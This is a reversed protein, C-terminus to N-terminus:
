NRLQSKRMLQQEVQARLFLRDFTQGASTYAAIGAGRLLIRASNPSLDFESQIMSLTLFRNKFASMAHDDVRMQPRRTVPHVLARAQLNGTEVLAMLLDMDRIGISRGFEALSMEGLLHERGPLQDAYALVKAIPVHFGHYGAAPNTQRLPIAGSRIGILIDGVSVGSQSQARQIPVWGKGAEAGPDRESHRKLEQLLAEGDSPLWRQRAGTVTTRPHIIGGQELAALETSTMGFRVCIEKSSELRPIDMLLQAFEKADFTARAHPRPDDAALAGAEILLPRLRKPDVGTEVGASAVSHLRRETLTVGLVAEGAAVPWIDLVADRLIDRFVDFSPEDKLHTELAYFLRRHAERVPDAASSARASSAILDAKLRDPGVKIAAFGAAAAQQRGKIPDEKGASSILGQGFMRCFSATAATGYAALWSPDGAGSLRDDLWRDFDSPAVDGGDLKGSMIRDLIKSLQGQIDFRQQPNDEKWLPVLLKSHRLCTSVERLQWDGRMAMRALPEQPGGEADERLCAPCGEVVPNRLARSIVPEDRFRLRINGMPAGTWSLMEDLDDETLGAWTGLTKVVEPDIAVFRKFAGALDYAFDPTKVGKSAALRSLYSSLTERSVPRLSKM